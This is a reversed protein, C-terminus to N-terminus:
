KDLHNQKDELNKELSKKVIELDSLEGKLKEIEWVASAREIKKVFEKSQLLNIIDVFASPITKRDVEQYDPSGHYSMDVYTVIDNGKLAKYSDYSSEILGFSKLLLKYIEYPTMNKVDDM